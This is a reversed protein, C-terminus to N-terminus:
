DEGDSCQGHEFNREARDAKTICFIVGLIKGSIKPM